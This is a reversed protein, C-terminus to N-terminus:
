SLIEPVFITKKWALHFYGSKLLFNASYDKAMPVTVTLLPLKPLSGNEGNFIKRKENFYSEMNKHYDLHDRTLNLFVCIGLKLGAVRHQHIGHSSVEM